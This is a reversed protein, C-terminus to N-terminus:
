ATGDDDDSETRSAIWSKNSRVASRPDGKPVRVVNVIRFITCTRLVFDLLAPLSHACTLFSLQELRGWCGPLICPVHVPGHGSLMSAASMTGNERTLDFLLGVPCKLVPKLRHTLIGLRRDPSKQCAGYYPLATSSDYPRVVTPSSNVVVLLNFCLPISCVLNFRQSAIPDFWKSVSPIHM